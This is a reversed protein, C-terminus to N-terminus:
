VCPLYNKKLQLRFLTTAYYLDYHIYFKRQYDEVLYLFLLCEPNIECIQFLKKQQSSFDFPVVMKKQLTQLHGTLKTKQKKKHKGM